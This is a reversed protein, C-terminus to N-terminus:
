LKKKKRLEDIELELEHLQLKANLDEKNEKIHARIVDAKKELKEIEQLLERHELPLVINQNEKEGSKSLLYFAIIFLIPYIYQTELYIAVLFLLVSLAGLYILKIKKYKKFVKNIFESKFFKKIKKM